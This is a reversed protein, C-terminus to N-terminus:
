AREASAVHHRDGAKISQGPRRAVQQVDRFTDLVGPRTQSRKSFRPGVRSGRGTAHNEGHEGTHRIELAGQDHFTGAGSPNGGVRAAHAKAWSWCKISSSDDVRALKDLLVSLRYGLNSAQKTDM